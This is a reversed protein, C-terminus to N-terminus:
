KYIKATILAISILSLIIGIIMPKSIKERYFLFGIIAAITVISVNFVPIFVSVDFHSLGVLFFYTSFWNFLGLIIGALISVWKMKLKMIFLRPVMVITGIILSVSFAITLFSSFDGKIYLQQSIKFLSDNIGNGLFLLIPLVFYLRETKRGTKRMLTLYFAIIALVIGCIRIWNYDEKFWVFGVMVPIVVSMKGSVSTIAIGAKQTSLGYIYFTMILFFGSIVSFIFWDNSIVQSIVIKEPATFYGLLSAIAYNVTIAQFVDVKFTVFMKFLVFIITSTIIASILYFMRSKQDHL